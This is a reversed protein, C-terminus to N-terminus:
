ATSARAELSDIFKRCAIETRERLTRVSKALIELEKRTIIYTMEYRAERYARELLALRHKEAKTTRPFVDRFSPDLESCRNNLEQLNHVKPRLDSLVRLVTKYYAEAAQHLEFAARNLHGRRLHNEYQELWLEGEQFHWEFRERAGPQIQKRGLAPETDALKHRFSDYLVIGEEKIERFFDSGQELHSNVEAIDHM